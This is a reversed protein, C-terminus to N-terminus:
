EWHLGREQKQSQQMSRRILISSLLLCVDSCVCGGQDNDKGFGDTNQDFVGAAESKEACRRAPAARCSLVQTYSWCLENLDEVLAASRWWISEVLHQDVWTNIELQKGDKQWPAAELTGFCLALVKLM